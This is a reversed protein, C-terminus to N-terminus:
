TRIILDPDPVDGTWLFKRLTQENLESRVLTGEQVAQVMRQVAAVLEQRGGYCFLIQVVLRANHETEREIMQCARLVREPFRTRDGIFKFRIGHKLCDNVYQETELAICDFLFAQEEQPRKFNELSFAYLSLYPIKTDLCFQITRKVAEFGERYGKDFRLARAKAWRRNGDMIAALHQIM